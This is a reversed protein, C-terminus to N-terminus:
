KMLSSFWIDLESDTMGGTIKSFDMPRKVVPQLMGFQQFSGSFKRLAPSEAIVEINEIPTRICELTEIQTEKIETADFIQCDILTLKKLNRFNGWLHMTYFACHEITLSQLNKIDRFLRLDPHVVGVLQRIHLHELQTAKKAIEEFQDISFISVDLSKVKDLEESGNSLIKTPEAPAKQSSTTIFQGDVYVTEEWPDGAFSQARKKAQERRDKELAEATAEATEPHLVPLPMEELAHFFHLSEAQSYSWTGEGDITYPGEQLTKSIFEILDEVSHAVVHRTNEKIGFNIVQGSLGSPGPDLDVALFNGGFDAAFPIWKRNIYQDKITEPPVAYFPVDNMAEDDALASCSQWESLVGSLPLFSMGFFLGPEGDLEGNHVQYLERLDTPLSTGLTRELNEIEEITAPQSLFSGFHSSLKKSIRKMVLQM